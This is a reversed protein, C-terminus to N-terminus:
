AKSNKLWAKKNEIKKIRNLYAVYKSVTIDREITIKFYTEIPIILDEFTVTEKKTEKKIKEVESDFVLDDLKKKVKEKSDQKIGTDQILKIANIPSIIYLYYLGYFFKIRNKDNLEFGKEKIAEEYSNDGKLLCYEKIIVDFIKYLGIDEYNDPWIDDILLNRVEKENLAAILKRLPLSQCSKHYPLKIQEKKKKGTSSSKRKM